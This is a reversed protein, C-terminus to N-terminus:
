LKGRPRCSERERHVSTVKDHAFQVPLLQRVGDLRNSIGLVFICLLLLWFLCVYVTYFIFFHVDATNRALLFHSLM